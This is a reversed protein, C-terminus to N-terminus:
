RSDGKTVTCSPRRDLLQETRRRMGEYIVNYILAKLSADTFDALDLAKEIEALSQTLAGKMLAGAEEPIGDGYLLVFPNYSGTKRDSEFDDLADAIYIWKGTHFGAASAIAREAGDFGYAFVAATLEGFLAAPIDVSATQSSECSALECLKERMLTYLNVLGARKKAHAAIPRVASFILRKLGRTDRIDDDLKAATLLVSVRATYDLVDNSAMMPRKKFPHVFCRGPLVAYPTHALAMRVLALFVMDYSLGARSLTGAAKGMSKCLGCYAAKYLAYDKVKLEPAYERVYGFMRYTGRQTATQLM